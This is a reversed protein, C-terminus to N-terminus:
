KIVLNVLKRNAVVITKHVKATECLKEISEQQLAQKIISQEDAQADITMKARLKGNVQIVYTEHELKLASKDIKPWPADIILNSFGLQQWLVHCIHPCIPALLRLLISLGEYILAQHVKDEADIKSIVNFLKMTASAVTNFQNRNYDNQAQAILQYIESRASKISEPATEWDFGNADNQQYLENIEQILNKHNLAFSYLRKLFRHAGDVGSDSWELSQEPPAAFIIFFRATDAGYKDILNNPDVVNGKSKSMKSGDKLVMGQTLLRKFPEDCNVLGMDRMLKHFFRAYLLHMVAHEVGGIYQDVPTWYKTRDDLMANEQNKCCFRAYYWSSEVFTDFTDTERKAPQNCKPCQAHIFTECHALPSGSVDFNVEEPLKVPLENEHVPIPGCSECLVMPIPTGWYRQRSIGWDRLRYNVTKKGLGLSMLKESIAEKAQESAMNSFEQSDICFGPETYAADQSHSVESNKDASIVVKIPLQYKQAFEFDRQDHAPVSMVAGSGYNMLVFNAVWVPVLEDTLPHRAKLGTDMGEKELTALAAENIANNKQKEIFANLEPNNKAAEIALPHEPAIALYSVGFLTDARTTYVELSSHGEVKFAIEVGESRGIWNRQMAKVQEPWGELKDLDNLLEDAYATIKLFWQSIERREIPAGSRWGKGDVVQENALVTKDVPDWNVMSSKKYVLGKEYLKIFFWQEWRYYSPDCTALERKWDYAFGLRKFQKRMSEINEQTWTAPLVQHKIAANEAPLGFADWGIPQLVNKGLSRQYRAVVDGLTYNRVHGMHLTGSPYPFMSLCYFKEKNLNEVVNFVQNKQWDDQAKQEIEASNYVSTEM